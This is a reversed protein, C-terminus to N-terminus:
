MVEKDGIRAAPRLFVQVVEEMDEERTEAWCAMRIETIM